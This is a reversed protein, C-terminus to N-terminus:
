TNLVPDPFYPLPQGSIIARPNGDVLAHAVEEGCIGAATERAASLLPPRRKTDHGDSALVHVAERKLLWQATRWAAEGWQGTLASGTVQIVCGLEIWQLIRQPTRQMIPNREPHTIVPTLGKELLKSFHEEIQAPVSYNSLEALLYRSGEITYREPFLMVDQLNEYSLHFDCGLTLRPTHGALVRLYELNSALHQRNYQFRENAHPTAVIHEIGDDTAMRCMELSMDWSKSGDDVQPLIHCHIDIM